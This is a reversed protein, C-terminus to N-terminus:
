NGLLSAVPVFSFDFHCDSVLLELEIRTVFFNM